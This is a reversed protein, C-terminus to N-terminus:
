GHNDGPVAIEGGDGGNLGCEALTGRFRGRSLPNETRLVVVGLTGLTAHESARIEVRSNGVMRGGHLMAASMSGEVVGGSEAECADILLSGIRSAALEIAVWGSAFQRAASGVGGVSEQLFVLGIVGGAFIAAFADLADGFGHSACSNRGYAVGAVAGFIEKGILVRTFSTFKEKTHVAEDAVLMEVAHNGSTQAGPEAIVEHTDAGALKKGVTGDGFAGRTEGFRIFAGGVIEAQQDRRFLLLVLARAFGM